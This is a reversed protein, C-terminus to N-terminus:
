TVAERLTKWEESERAFPKFRPLEHGTVLAFVRKERVVLDRDDRADMIAALSKARTLCGTRQDMYYPLSGNRAGEAQWVIDTNALAGFLLLSTDLAGQRCRAIDVARPDLAHGWVQNRLSPRLWFLLRTWWGIRGLALSRAYNSRAPYGVYGEHPCGPRGCDQFGHLWVGVPVQWDAGGFSTSTPVSSQFHFRHGRSMCPWYGGCLQAAVGEAVRVQTADIGDARTLHAPTLHDVSADARAILLADNYAADRDPTRAYIAEACVAATATYHFEIKNM